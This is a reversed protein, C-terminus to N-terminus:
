LPNDMLAKGCISACSFRLAASWEWTFHQQAEKALYVSTGRLMVAHQLLRRTAPSVVHKDHIRAAPM